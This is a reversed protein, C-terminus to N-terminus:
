AMRSANSQPSSTPRSATSHDCGILRMLAVQDPRDEVWGQSALLGSPTGREHERVAFEERRGAKRDDARDGLAHARERRADDQRVIERNGALRVLWTRLMSASARGMRWIPAATGEGIRASTRALSAIRTPM